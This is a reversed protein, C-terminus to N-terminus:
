LLYADAVQPADELNRGRPRVNHRRVTGEVDARRVRARLEEVHCLAANHHAVALQVIGTQACLVGTLAVLEDGVRCAHQWQVRAGECCVGLDWGPFFMENTGNAHTLMECTAPWGSFMENTVEFMENTIM